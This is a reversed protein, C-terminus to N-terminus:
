LDKLLNEIDLPTKPASPKRAKAVETSNWRTRQERLEKVMIGIEEDTLTDPEKSFLANISNPDAEVLPNM